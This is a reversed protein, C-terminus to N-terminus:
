ASKIRPPTRELIAIAEAFRGRLYAVVGMLRLIEPHEPAIAVGERLADDAADLDRKDLAQAARQLCRIAPASLGEVRSAPTTRQRAPAPNSAASAAAGSPAPDRETHTM